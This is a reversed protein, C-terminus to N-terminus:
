LQIITQCQSERHTQLTIRAINLKWTLVTSTHWCHSTNALAACLGAWGLGAWGLGAWGLGACGPGAALHPSSLALALPPWM